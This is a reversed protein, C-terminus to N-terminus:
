GAGVNVVLLLFPQQHHRLSSLDTMAQNSPQQERDVSLVLWSNTSKDVELNIGSM